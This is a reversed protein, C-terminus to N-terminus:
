RMSKELWVMSSTIVEPVATEQGMAVLDAITYSVLADRWAQEVSLMTQNIPCVPPYKHPATACPGQFRIGACRFMPEGGEVADIVELLNVENAPRALKYGGGARGRVAMLVGGASLAQLYKAMQAAPVDHYEALKAAPLSKGAPLLALLACAHLTTEVGQGLRM